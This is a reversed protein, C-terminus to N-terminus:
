ERARLDGHHAVRNTSVISANSHADDTSNVHLSVVHGPQEAHPLGFAEFWSGCRLRAIERSLGM